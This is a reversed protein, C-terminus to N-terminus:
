SVMPPYYEAFPIRLVLGDDNGSVMYLQIQARDENIKHIMECCVGCPPLPNPAPKPVNLGAVVAVMRIDAHRLSDGFHVLAAGLAIQEACRSGTPQSLEFNIGPFV